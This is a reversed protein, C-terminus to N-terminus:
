STGGKLNGRPAAARSLRDNIAIGLEEMPIPSVCITNVGTADLQKLHAYLNAAAEVLNSSKSLNLSHVATSPTPRNGFGLWAEDNDCAECNLKVGANPAYHSAMMGPAQIGDGRNPFNVKTKAVEELEESTVSGSRLLTLNEGDVKVITSELGVVCPGGDIVLLDEGEYEEIVHAALTPSIKGSKNASPAALPKGLASIIERSFGTPCRLGVSGLGATVLDHIKSNANLPVVITLPGPWFSAALRSAMDNMLGYTEAMIQGDVHCILPNFSPRGKMAFIKAVAEGNTADAALGYVTETPIVVTEGDRLTAVAMSLTQSWNATSVSNAM